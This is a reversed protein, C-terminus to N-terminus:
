SSSAAIELLEVIAAPLGYLHVPVIRATARRRQARWSELYSRLAAVSINGTDPDVDVFGPRAGTQVIAEATAIFTMPVTIVEDGPGIGLALLALRLADTGSGVGVVRNVDLYEAFEREFSGCRRRRRCLRHTTFPGTSSPAVRGRIERNQAALDVFKITM